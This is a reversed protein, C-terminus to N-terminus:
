DATSVADASTFVAGSRCLNLGAVVLFAVNCDALKVDGNLIRGSACAFTNIGVALFPAGGHSVGVAVDFAGLTYVAVVNIHEKMLVHVLPVSALHIDYVM